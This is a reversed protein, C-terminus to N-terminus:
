RTAVTNNRRRFLSAAPRNTSTPPLPRASPKLLRLTSTRDSLGGRPQPDYIASLSGEPEDKVVWHVNPITIRALLETLRDTTEALQESTVALQESTERNARATERNDEAARRNDRTARRNDEAAKRNDRTARRNDWAAARLSGDIRTAMEDLRDTTELNTKAATRNDEASEPRRLRFGDKQQNGGDEPPRNLEDTM